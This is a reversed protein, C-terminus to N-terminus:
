QVLKVKVEEHWGILCVDLDARAQAEATSLRDFRDKIEPTLNYGSAQYERIAHVQLQIINQHRDALKQIEKRREENAM